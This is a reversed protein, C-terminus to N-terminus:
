VTNFSIVMRNQTKNVEGDSGHKLWSPFVFLSGIEPRFFYGKYTYDTFKITEQFHAYPNPNEFHLNSSKDDTHIYLAGSLASMPHSHSLLKSGENQINFWSNTIKDINIGTESLYDKLVSLLRTQIGSCSDINDEIYKLINQNLGHSSISNGTISGHQKITLNNQNSIIYDYIHNCQDASLFNNARLVCTPFLKFKDISLSM